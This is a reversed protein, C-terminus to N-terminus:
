NWSKLGKSGAYIKAWYLASELEEILTKDVPDPLEIYKGNDRDVLTIYASGYEMTLNIEFGEPIEKCVKNTEEMIEEMTEGEWSM